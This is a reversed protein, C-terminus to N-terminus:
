ARRWLMLIADVPLAVVERLRWYWRLWARRSATSTPPPCRLADLGALNLLLVCRPLHYGSSAAYVPAGPPLLRACARVSGITNRGTPELTVAEEPVGAETLLDAMVEAEPRGFRGQGGTPMYQVGAITVGLRLAARVRSRLAGSPSGDPRVAAGFIIITVTM